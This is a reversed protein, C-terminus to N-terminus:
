DRELGYEWILNIGRQTPEKFYGRLVLKNAEQRINKTYFRKLDRVTIFGREKGIKILERQIIGPM